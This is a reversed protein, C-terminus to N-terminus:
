RQSGSDAAIIELLGRARHECVSDPRFSDTLIELKTRGRVRAFIVVINDRADPPTTLGHRAGGHGTGARRRIQARTVGELETVLGTGPKGVTIQDSGDVM